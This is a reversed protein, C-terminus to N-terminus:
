GSINQLQKNWNRQFFAKGQIKLWSHFYPHKKCYWIKSSRNQLKGCVGYQKLVHCPLLIGAVTGMHPCSFVSGHQFSPKLMTSFRAESKTILIFCSALIIDFLAKRFFGWYKLLQQLQCLSTWCNGGLVFLDMSHFYVWSRLAGQTSCSGSIWLVISADLVNKTGM